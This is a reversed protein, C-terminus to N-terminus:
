SPVADDPALRWHAMRGDELWRGYLHEECYDWLGSKGRRLSAVPTRGCQRRGEVWM